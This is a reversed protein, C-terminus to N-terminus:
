RWNQLFMLSPVFKRVTIGFVPVPAVSSISSFFLGFFQGEKVFLSSRLPPLNNLVMEETM